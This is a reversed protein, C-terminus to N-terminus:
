REFVSLQGTATACIAHIAGQPVIPGADQSIVIAEKQQLVIGANAVAARFGIALTIIDTANPSTNRIWLDKRRDGESVRPTCVQVSTTGVAVIENRTSEEAGNFVTPM